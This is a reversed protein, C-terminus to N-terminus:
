DPSKLRRILYDRFGGVTQLNESNADEDPIEIGFEEECRMAFELNGVSDDLQVFSVDDRVQPLKVGCEEIVLARMKDAIEKDSASSWMAFNRAKEAEVEERSRGFKPIWSM